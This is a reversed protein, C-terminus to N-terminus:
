FHDRFGGSGTVTVSGLFQYGYYSGTDSAAQDLTGGNLVINPM